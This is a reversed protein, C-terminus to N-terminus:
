RKLCSFSCQMWSTKMFRFEVPHTSNKYQSYQVTCEKENKDIYESSITVGTLSCFVFNEDFTKQPIKVECRGLTNRGKFTLSQTGSLKFDLSCDSSPYVPIIRADQSWVVASAVVALSSVVLVLLKKSIVFYEGRYPQSNIM